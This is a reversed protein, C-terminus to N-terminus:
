KLGELLVKMACEQAAFVTMGDRRCDEYEASALEARDEIFSDDDKRLNGAATLYSLRSNQILIRSQRVALFIRFKEAFTESNSLKRLTPPIHIKQLEKRAYRITFHM